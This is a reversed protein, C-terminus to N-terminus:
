PNRLLDTQADKEKIKSELKTNRDHCYKSKPDPRWHSLSPSVTFLLLLLLCLSIFENTTNHINKTYSKQTMLNAYTFTTM